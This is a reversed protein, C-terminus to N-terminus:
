KLAKYLKTKKLEAAKKANPYQEMDEETIDEKLWQDITDILRVMRIGSPILDYLKSAFAERFINNWANEDDTSM